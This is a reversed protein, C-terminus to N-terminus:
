IAFPVTTKDHPNVWLLDLEADSLGVSWNRYVNALLVTEADTGEEVDRLRPVVEYAFDAGFDPTYVESEGSSVLCELVRPILRYARFESTFGLQKLKGNLSLYVCVGFDCCKPEGEFDAITESLTSEADAEPLDLATLDVGVSEIPQSDSHSELDASLGSEDPVFRGDSDTVRDLLLSQVLYSVMGATYQISSHSLKETAEANVALVVNPQRIGHVKRTSQASVSDGDVRKDFVTM